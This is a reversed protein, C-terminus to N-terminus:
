GASKLIAFLVCDHRRGHLDIRGRLIGERVAGAKEAVRQSPLNDVAALIEIRELGAETFAWQSLQRTAQTAIGCRTNSTRMWYGLEGVGHKLDMRHIGCGGLLRDQDDTILFSWEENREWAGPRGEVWNQTDLRSYGAHCWPMWASLEAMSEIVAEYIAEVDEPQYRRLRIESVM